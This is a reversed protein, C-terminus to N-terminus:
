LADIGTENQKAVRKEARMLDLQRAISSHAKLAKRDEPSRATVSQVAEEMTYEVGAATKARFLAEALVAMPAAREGTGRETWTNTDALITEWRETIANVMDQATQDPPGAASDGLVQSLGHWAAMTQKVTNLKLLDFNLVAESGVKFVLAVAGDFVTKHETGDKDLYFKILKRERTPKAVPEIASM